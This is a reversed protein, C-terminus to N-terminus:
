SKLRSHQRQMQIDQMGQELSIRPEYGLVTRAKAISYRNRRLLFRIGEASAPPALKRLAWIPKSALLFGALAWTPLLPIVRKGAMKTHYSFYVRCPTAVGDTVNFVEGIAEKELALFIADLLNDVHVHNIVGRGFDPLAFLNQGILDIPRLLWPLSNVGYVDGPRIVIVGLADTTNFSLAVRESSIKTENYINGQGLQAGEENIDQAYDFGYVMVSSLHVLRKVGAAKAAECVRRTGDVNVRQYDAPDGDEAVIAVTHFVIDAGQFLHMLATKDNIDAISVEAGLARSNAASTESHDLGCVQWGLALAREAMRQGIFGGIGTIAIRTM